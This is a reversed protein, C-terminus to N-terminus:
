TLLITLSYRAESNYVPRLWPIVLHKVEFEHNLSINLIKIFLYSFIVFYLRQFLM